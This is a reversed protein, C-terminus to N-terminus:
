VLSYSLEDKVVEVISDVYAALEQEDPGEAMVRVLSETGSPRVLVRGSGGMRSEVQKIAEEIKKNGSLKTKDEVPVNYLLQPYKAMRSALQSLSKAESKMVDMLQIASLLGDGTTNYDLMIIHGSQEGGISYSGRLMEELVYRHGVKTQEPKM